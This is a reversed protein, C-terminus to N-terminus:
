QYSESFQELHNIKLAIYKECLCLDVSNMQNMCMGLFLRSIDSITIQQAIKVIMESWLM